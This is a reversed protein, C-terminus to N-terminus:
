SAGPTLDRKRLQASLPKTNTLSVMAQATPPTRDHPDPRRKPDGRRPLHSVPLGELSPAASGAFAWCLGCALGGAAHHVSQRKEEAPAM